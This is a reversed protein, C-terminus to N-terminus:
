VYVSTKSSAASPVHVAWAASFVCNTTLRLPVMKWFTKLLRSPGMWIMWCRCNWVSASPLAVTTRVNSFIPSQQLELSRVARGPRVKTWDVRRSRREHEPVPCATSDLRRIEHARGLGGVVRSQTDREDLLGVADGSP